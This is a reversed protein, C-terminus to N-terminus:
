LYKLTIYLYIDLITSIILVLINYDFSVHIQILDGNLGIMHLYTRKCYFNYNWILSLKERSGELIVM